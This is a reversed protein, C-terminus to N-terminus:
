KLPCYSLGLRGCLSECPADEGCFEEICEMEEPTVRPNERKPPCGVKKLQEIFKQYTKPLKKLWSCDPQLELKEMMETFSQNVEPDWMSCFEVPGEDFCEDM